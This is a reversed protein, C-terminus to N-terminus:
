YQAIIKWPILANREEVYPKAVVAEAVSGRPSEEGDLSSLYYIQDQTKSIKERVVQSGNRRREGIMSRITNGM